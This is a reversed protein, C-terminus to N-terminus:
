SLSGRCFCCCRLRCLLTTSLRLSDDNVLTFATGSTPIALWSVGAADNVNLTARANITDAPNRNYSWLYPVAAGNFSDGFNLSLWLPVDASLAIPQELEFLYEYPTYEVGGILQNAGAIVKNLVTAAGSGNTLAQSAPATPSVSSADGNSWFAYNLAEPAALEDRVYAWFTGGTVTTDASLTFDDATAYNGFIVFGNPDPLDMPSNDFVVSSWAPAAVLALVAGVATYLQSLMQQFRYGFSSFKGRPRMGGAASSVQHVGAVCRRM